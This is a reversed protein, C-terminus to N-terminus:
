ENGADDALKRLVLASIDEPARLKDRIKFRANGHGDPVIDFGDTKAEDFCRGTFREASYITGKLNPIAQRRALQGVLPEGTDYSDENTSVGPVHPAGASGHAAAIALGPM